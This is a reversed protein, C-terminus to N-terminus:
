RPSISRVVHDGWHRYGRQRAPAPVDLHEDVAWFPARAREDRFTEALPTMSGSPSVTGEDVNRGLGM